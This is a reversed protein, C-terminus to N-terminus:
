AQGAAKRNALACGLVVTLYALGTVVIICPGTPMDGAYSILVGGTSLCACLLVAGAMMQWLKRSFHAAIGAPLTLLAIVLVIGVLSVMLVVTLSTLGLLLFYFRKVPVGRLEAFEVDYTVALLEKYYLGVLLLMGVSLVATIYLDAKAIILIDGFLYSMGDNYGPTMHILLLGIAMGLSWIAGIVTDERQQAYLHVCGMIVAALIAAIVAGLLPSFWDWGFASQCYLAGGIGGLVAHSIAAALYSIRRVVVFAGVVGLPLSTLIGAILAYRLFPMQPDTLVQWFDSM